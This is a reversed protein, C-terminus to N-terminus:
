KGCSVMLRYNGSESFLMNRLGNIDIGEEEFFEAFMPDPVYVYEEKKKRGVKNAEKKEKSAKARIYNSVVKKDFIYTHVKPDKESLLEDLNIDDDIKRYFMLMYKKYFAGKWAFLSFASRLSPLM